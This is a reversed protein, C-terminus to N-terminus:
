AYVDVTRGLHDLVLQRLYADYVGPANMDAKLAALVGQQRENLELEIPFRYTHNDATHVRIFVEM